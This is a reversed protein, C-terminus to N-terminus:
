AANRMSPILIGILGAAVAVLGGLILTQDAGIEGALIGSVAMAAAMVGFVLAQRSTVVRAFLAQPTREQFLTINPIVFAMNTAGILFFLGIAWVPDTVFGVAIFTLGMGIFGAIAMPGKKVDGAIGGIVLGGVISGLGIAAM